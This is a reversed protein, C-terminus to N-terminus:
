QPGQGARGQGGVVIQDAALWREPVGHDRNWPIASTCGGALITINMERLDLHVHSDRDRGLRREGVRTVALRDTARYAAPQSRARIRAGESPRDGLHLCNFSVPRVSASM